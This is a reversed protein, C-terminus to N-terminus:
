DAEVVDEQERQAIELAMPEQWIPLWQRVRDSVEARGHWHRMVWDAAM